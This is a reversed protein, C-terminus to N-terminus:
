GGGNKGRLKALLRHDILLLSVCLAAWWREREDIVFGILSGFLVLAVGLLGVCSRVVRMVNVREGNPMTIPPLGYNTAGPDPKM